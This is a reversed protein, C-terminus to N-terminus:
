ALLAEFQRRMRGYDEAGPSSPAFQFIPKGAGFAEALRINHRIGALMKERGFQRALDAIVNRHMNMRTDVMVPLLGLLRLPKNLKSAVGFFLRGLQRVGVGALYHPLFPVLLGDSSALANILLHDLTPPTDLVVRSFRSKIAEGALHRKLLMYDDRKGNGKYTLDAQAAFLNDYGTPEIAEHLEFGSEMFIKHVAPSGKPRPSLGLGQGAHGQTDLDVLLTRHGQAAWASALNVATTTKGTGGKRNAVAIVLMAEGLGRDL